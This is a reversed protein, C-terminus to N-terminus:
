ELMRGLHHPMGSTPSHADVYFVPDGTNLGGISYRLWKGIQNPKMHTSLSKVLFSRAQKIQSRRKATSLTPDKLIAIQSDRYTYLNRMANIALHKDFGTLDLLKRVVQEETRVQTHGITTITLLLTFIIFRM